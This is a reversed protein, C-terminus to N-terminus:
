ELAYITLGTLLKAYIDTSKQPLVEGGFTIDRVQAM